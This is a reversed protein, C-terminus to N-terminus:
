FFIQINDLMKAEGRLSFGSLSHYEPLCTLSDLKHIQHQETTSLVPLLPLTVHAPVVSLAGDQEFLLLKYHCSSKSLLTLRTHTQTHVLTKRVFGVISSFVVQLWTYAVFVAVVAAEFVNFNLICLLFSM